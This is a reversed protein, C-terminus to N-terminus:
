EKLDAIEIVLAQRAQSNVEVLEKVEFSMNLHEFRTTMAANKFKASNVITSYDNPNVLPPLYVLKDSFYELLSEENARIFDNRDIFSRRLRYYYSLDSLTIENQILYSYDEIISEYIPSEITWEKAWARNFFRWFIEQDTLNSGQLYHAMLISDEKLMQNLDVRDQWSEDLVEYMDHFKISDLILEENLVELKGLLLEREFNKSRRDELVFAGFVSSFIMVGEFLYRVLFTAKM